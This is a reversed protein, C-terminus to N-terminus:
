IVFWEQVFCRSSQSNRRFKEFGLCFRRRSLMSPFDGHVQRAQDEVGDGAFTGTTPDLGIAGSLYLTQGIVM